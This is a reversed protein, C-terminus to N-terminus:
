PDPFTGDAKNKEYAEDGHLQGNQVIFGKLDDKAYAFYSAWFEKQTATLNYWDNLNVPQDKVLGRQSDNFTSGNKAFRRIALALLEIALEDDELASRIM